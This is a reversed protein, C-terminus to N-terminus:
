QPVVRAAPGPACLIVQKVGPLTQLTAVLADAHSPQVLVKVNPGADITAYCPLGEARLQWIHHLVAITEPQWYLVAPQSALATAHMKLANHEAIQGLSVFDHEALARKLQRLDAEVSGLWGSYLPSTNVTHAMGESSSVAKPRSELIVVALRLPFDDGEAVPVAYSDRGDARFGKNWQAFGGYISRSASGSGQRALRSLEDTSLDLDAAATAALALAAFGSASSALGAGTPFHNTSNVWAYGRIGYQTRILDLFRRVKLAQAEPASAGNLFVQDATLSTQWEVQTRTYLADLTLSLSSNTPLHLQLDRKGWYKILAINSHAQAEIM